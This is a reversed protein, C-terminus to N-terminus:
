GTNAEALILLLSSDGNVLLDGINILYCSSRSTIAIKVSRLLM